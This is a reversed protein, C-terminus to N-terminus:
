EGSPPPITAAARLKARLTKRDIGLIAAARSKNGNVGALVARVHAAEAEALTRRPPTADRGAPRLAPPLDPAGIVERDAMVVLRHVLNELERVNGPWHYARLRRLARDDFRPAPKGMAAAFTETFHRLLLDLDGGRDRLPPLEIPLVHIRYYLDARFAGSRVMAPLDRNTAALVRVNVKVPQRAGIMFVEQDQLARLLAAQMALPMEAIEDLFLSGKDAAQFLGPRTEAAGTFAGKRYGFLESELLGAPIGACNVPLLPGAARASRYHIARAVLEKGTGSEGSILVPAASRAAREIDRYLAQMGPANGLLGFDAPARLRQPARGARRRRVADLARRVASLLEADTFPKALYSDAGLRMAEVAGPISAYGTVVILETDRYQDRVHRLLDLGTARPMRQDTIVLDPPAIELARIAEEVGPVTVVRYGAATLHREIVELMAPSDDVVLIRDPNRIM